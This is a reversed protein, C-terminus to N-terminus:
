RDGSEGMCFFLDALGKLKNLRACFSDEFDFDSDDIKIGRHYFTPTPKAEQDIPTSTKYNSKTM